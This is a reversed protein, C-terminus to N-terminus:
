VPGASSDVVEKLASDAHDGVVVSLGHGAPNDVVERLASDAHDGAVERLGHGALNDVVGKLASDPDPDAYYGVDVKPAPGARPVRGAGGPFGSRCSSLLGSRGPLVAGEEAARNRWCPRECSGWGSGICPKLGNSM